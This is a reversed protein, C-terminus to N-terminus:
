LELFLMLETLYKSFTENVIKHTVVFKVFIYWSHSLYHNSYIIFEIFIKMLHDTEWCRPIFITKQGFGQTLLDLLFFFWYHGPYFCRTYIDRRLSAWFLLRSMFKKMNIQECYLALQYSKVFNIYKMNVWLNVWAMFIIAYKTLDETNNPKLLHTKLYLKEM